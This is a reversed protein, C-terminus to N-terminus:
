SPSGPKDDSGGDHFQEIAEKAEDALRFSIQRGLLIRWAAEILRWLLLGFGIPLALNLIWREIPLDEAEVGLTHMTDVYIYSGYLLILAYVICLASAIIGAIHRGREPLAKVLVDVGIHSGVKVGYSMGLLVMWGFMYTTAELSWTFGTSFVYRMVVQVFTLLTMAALLLALLGEELRHFARDFM